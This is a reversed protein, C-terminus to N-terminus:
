FQFRAVLQGQRPASFTTGNNIYGFGSTTQGNVTTQTALPNTVTPNNMETRNFMNTFEARIQLSSREKIRFVRGLSINEVPRRQYRFDSYYAAATGWQGPAPNSWAAPNLVFTKNPDFCHCNLDQTFLPVGPVRNFLTSQFLYTALSNTSTPSPIPFGSAYRLLTGIQWDRAIWSVAKNGTFKNGSPLRPTTYSGSIVLQFPQDFVSLAKQNRRNFADNIIVGDGRGYDDEVGSDLQKAWTFGSAFELGHSLRKTAKAQLSEYWTDGDPVWHWNTISGYQPFPRLSQAVTANSPFGPYPFGFGRSAALASGVQSALLTRDAANNLNLGYSALTAPTICNTCILGAGNWWAGRNGVYTAEVLLNRAIERQIGLSWQIQRAPRGANQDQAQNVSGTTGPFLYQGPDFNPFTVKYPLGNRMLYAPYGYAATTYGFESGASYGFNNDDTKFYSVGSGVRLVTKPTIQYALGLRPGFAFPYNHSFECNCRGGGYGEGILGGLRGGANENPTSPSFIIYYGNGDRLYSSFDYRLGYDLTLRRTVKWSDQAYGSLAHAGMRTAAPTGDIGNDVSGLLFSAYNFGVTSALSVGNLSPLGSETPSFALWGMSYTTNFIKYGDTMVEGGFKYTHNNKVWTLNTNGNPKYYVLHEVVGPGTTISLGGAGAAGNLTELVPFYPSNTGTLGLEQVPNISVATQFFHMDMLGAGFHLLLTPTLTQDFNLRVTNTPVHDPTGQLPQPLASNNPTNRDTLSWYGTLKSKPGLLYDIKVSPISTVSPNAYTPLYNNILGNANPGNPLPLLSQIKLAVPDLQASPIINGPFPNRYTVGNVAFDSTPDYITNEMIPRGLGDTGLNRSTLAQSFNGSRYALTPVTYEVNNTIITQRFQEFNFFFFAKDHGNYLKPLYIPGGLTFGYDERRQRPRLLGGNGNNTFPTGANLAENVFYLYASGHLVNTGSKMTLNFLGGGALGLEASYNSTQVAVEQIADVSPQTQSQTSYWGNTADMGEIRMAQTNAPMGNIRIGLDAGLGDPSYTSGPLLQVVAYPNRIGSQGASAGIGLVPLNNMTDTNVNHSLEGSETKLLPAAETVTVSEANSGVELVADVRYTQAVDVTISKQVFKKFGPVTVSLEYQGAPLQALTYNGTASTGARYVAGNEVNRIEVPAGAVVAGAPDSVTGTITGRDSQALIARSIALVCLSIVLTRIRM